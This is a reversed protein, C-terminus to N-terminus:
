KRLLSAIIMIIMMQGGMQTLVNSQFPGLLNSGPRLFGVIIIMKVNIMMIFVVDSFKFALVTM